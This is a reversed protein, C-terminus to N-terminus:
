SGIFRGIVELLYISSPDIHDDHYYSDAILASHEDQPPPSLTLLKSFFISFMCLQKGSRENGPFAAMEVSFVDCFRRRRRHRLACVRLDRVSEM